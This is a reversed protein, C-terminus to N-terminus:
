NNPWNPTPADFLGMRDKCFTGEPTKVGVFYSQATIDQKELFAMAASKNPGEYLVYTAPAGFSKGNIERLFKVTGSDDEKVKDKKKQIVAKKNKLLISDGPKISEIQESTLDFGAASLFHQAYRPGEGVYGLSLFHIDYHGTRQGSYIRMGDKYAFYMEFKPFHSIYDVSVLPGHKNILEKSMREYFQEVPGGNYSITELASEVMQASAMNNIDTTVSISVSDTEKSKYGGFLKKWISM